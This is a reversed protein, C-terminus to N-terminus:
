SQFEKLNGRKEVLVELNIFSIAEEVYSELGFSNLKQLPYKKQINM